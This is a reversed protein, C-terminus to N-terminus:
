KSLRQNYWVHKNRAKERIHLRTVLRLTSIFRSLFLSLRSYAYIHALFNHSYKAINLIYVRKPLVYVSAYYIHTFCILLLFIYFGIFPYFLKHSNFSLQVSQVERKYSIKLFRLIRLHCYLFLRCYFVSFCFSRSHALMLAHTYSHYYDAFTKDSAQQFRSLKHFLQLTRSKIVYRLCYGNLTSSWLSGHFRSIEFNPCDQTYLLQCAQHSWPKIFQLTKDYDPM